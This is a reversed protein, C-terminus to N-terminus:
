RRQRRPRRDAASRSTRRARDADAHQRRRARRRRGRHRRRRGADTISVDNTGTTITNSPQRRRRHRHRHARRQRDDGVLDGATLTVSAADDGTLTLVQDNTLAEANITNTGSGTAISLGAVTGTTVNLAGSLATADLNGILGSVTFDAARGADADQRDGAGRRQGDRHRPQRRLQRGRRQHHHSNGYRTIIRSRTAAPIM